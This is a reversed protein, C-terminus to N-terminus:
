PSSIVLAGLIAAILTTAILLARLSFRYSWSLCPMVAIVAFISAPFWTPVMVFVSVARRIKEVSFWWREPGPGPVEVLSRSAIRSRSRWDNDYHTSFRLRGFYSSITFHRSPSLSGSLMDWWYYSRGSLAFLSLSLVGFVTSVAIRLLRGKPQRNMSAM